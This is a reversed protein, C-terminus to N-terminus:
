GIQVDGEKRQAREWGADFRLISTSEQTGEEASFTLHSRRYSRRAIADWRPLMAQDTM